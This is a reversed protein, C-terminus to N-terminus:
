SLWADLNRIDLTLATAVRYELTAGKSARWGPLLAVGDARAVMAIAHRMYWQWEQPKGSFNLTELDAPNLVDHGLARLENAAANFAPYNFDKVGSMPGAIYIRM